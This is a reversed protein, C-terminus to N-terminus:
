FSKSWMLLVTHGTEDGGRLVGKVDYSYEVYVQSQFAFGSTIATSLTVGEVDHQGAVGSASLSAVRGHVYTARFHLFFFFMVELRYELSAILYRELPFQNFLAGPVPNRALDYSESVLPGGGVAFASFRDLEGLPAWGAHLTPVLRHRESLLPIPLAAIVYASLKIYDRTDDDKVVVNRAPSDYDRWHDRRTFELDAGTAWGLHPLEMLNRQFSDLRLRLRAGHILTDTPIRVTDPTDSTRDHYQYGVHYYAGIRLDNDVNYPSIRWRYGVGLWTSVTGWLLSSEEISRGDIIEESPFPITSNEFHALAMPGDFSYGYDVQNYLGALQARLHHPSKRYLAIFSGYPLVSTGAVNPELIMAGLSLALLSRRDREDVVIPRGFVTTELREGALPTHYEESESVPPATAHPSDAPPPPAQEEAEKQVELAEREELSKEHVAELGKEVPGPLTPDGREPAPPPEPQYAPDQLPPEVPEGSEDSQASAGSEDSGASAGPEDSRASAGSADSEDSRGPAGEPPSSCAICILCLLLLCASLGRPALLPLRM